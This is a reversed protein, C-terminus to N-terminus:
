GRKLNVRVIAGRVCGDDDTDWEVSPQGLIGGKVVKAAERQLIEELHSLSFWAEIRHTIVPESPTEAAVPANDDGRGYGISGM